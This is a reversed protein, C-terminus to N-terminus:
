ISKFFLSSVLHDQTTRRFEREVNDVVLSLALCIIPRVKTHTEICRSRQSSLALAFIKVQTCHTHSALRLETVIQNWFKPLTFAISTFQVRMQHVDPSHSNVECEFLILHSFAKLSCLRSQFHTCTRVILEEVGQQFPFSCIWWAWEIEADIAWM